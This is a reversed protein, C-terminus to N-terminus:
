EIWSLLIHIKLFVVFTCIQELPLPPDIGIGTQISLLAIATRTGSDEVM